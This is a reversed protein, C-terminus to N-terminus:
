GGITGVLHPKGSRVGRVEIRRAAAEAAPRRGGEVPTVQLEVTNPLFVPTKFAVEVRLPDPLRGEFAALTRAKLWMGHAIAARFGFVKATLDHLHIPNRDGSVAAYRRGVDAPVRWRIAPGAPMAEAPIAEAPERHAGGKSEGSREGPRESSREGSREGPRESSREGSRERHLYSSIERWVPEDGVLAESVLDVARGASHPRLNAAWTRVTVQEDSRVPRHQTIENVIHILGLLPFPFQPRTMLAMSLPFALLHLYTPPLVDGVRFGCVQQYRWLRDAEIPQDTLELRDGPLSNGGGGRHLIAKAYLSTLSPVANESV